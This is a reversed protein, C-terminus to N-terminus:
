PADAHRQLVPDRRETLEDRGGVATEDVPVPPAEVVIPPADPSPEGSTPPDGAPELETPPMSLRQHLGAAEGLQEEEVLRGREGGSMARAGKTTALVVPGEYGHPDLPMGAHDSGVRDVGLEMLLADVRPRSRVTQVLRREVLQGVAREDQVFPLREQNV